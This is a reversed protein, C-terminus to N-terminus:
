VDCAIYTYPLVASRERLWQQLVLAILLVYESHTGTAKSIWCAFRMRRTINDCTIRGRQVTNKWMIEYVARNEFFFYHVSYLICTKIKELVQTLSVETRLIFSLSIHDYM